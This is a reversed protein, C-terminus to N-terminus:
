KGEDSKTNKNDDRGIIKTIATSICEEIKQSSKSEFEGLKTKFYVSVGIIAGGTVFTESVYILVGSTINWANMFACLFAMAIGSAFLVVAVIYAIRDKINIDKWNQIM